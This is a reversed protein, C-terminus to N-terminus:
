ERVWNGPCLDGLGDGMGEKYPHERRYNGRRRSGVLM